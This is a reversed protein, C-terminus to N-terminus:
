ESRLAGRLALLEADIRAETPDSLTDAIRERLHQRFKKRLRSVTQRVCEETTALRTALSAYSEEVGGDPSLYPALAAFQKGRGAEEEAKGLDQYVCRLVSLAWSREFLSEPTESDVPEGAYQEEGYEVDLSLIEKHGGRKLATEYDRVNSVYRRFTTLLFTRLRGLEPNAAAFLGRDIVYSFYGQTLDQADPPSHGLRRAFAYVPYWYTQCLDELAQRASRTDDKGRVRVVATWRTVPFASNAQPEM